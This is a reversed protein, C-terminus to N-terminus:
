ADDDEADDVDAPARRGVLRLYRPALLYPHGTRSFMVSVWGFEVGDNGVVVTGRQGVRLRNERGAPVSLLEVRDGRHLDLTEGTM